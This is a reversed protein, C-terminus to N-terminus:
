VREWSWRSTGGAPTLECVEGAHTRGKPQLEEPVAGAHTRGMIHLGEPVRQELM